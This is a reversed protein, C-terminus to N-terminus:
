KGGKLIEYEHRFRKLNPRVMQSARAGYGKDFLLDNLSMLISAINNIHSVLLGTCPMFNQIYLVVVPKEYFFRCAHKEKLGFRINFYETQYCFADQVSETTDGAITLYQINQKQMSTIDAFFSHQKGDKKYSVQIDAGFGVDMQPSLAKVEFGEYDSVIKSIATEVLMGFQRSENEKQQKSILKTEKIGERVGEFDLFDKFSVTWM